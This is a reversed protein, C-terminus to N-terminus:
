LIVIHKAAANCKTKHGSLASCVKVQNQLLIPKKYIKKM